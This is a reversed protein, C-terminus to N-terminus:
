LGVVWDFGWSLGSPSDRLASFFNRVNGQLPIARQSPYAEWNGVLIAYRSGRHPPATISRAIYLKQCRERLPRRGREQATRARLCADDDRWHGLQIQVNTILNQDVHAFEHQLPLITRECSITSGFIALRHWPLRDGPSGRYRFKRIQQGGTQDGNGHV